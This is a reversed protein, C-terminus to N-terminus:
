SHYRRLAETCGQLHLGQRIGLWQQDEKTPKSKETLLGFGFKKTSMMGRWSFERSCEWFCMRRWSDLVAASMTWAMRSTLFMNMRWLCLVCANSLGFHRFHSQHHEICLSCNEPFKNQCQHFYIDIGRAGIKSFLNLLDHMRLNASRIKNHRLLQEWHWRNRPFLSGTSHSLPFHSTDTRFRNHGKNNWSICPFQYRIGSGVTHTRHQLLRYCTINLIYPTRKCMDRHHFYICQSVCLDIPLM